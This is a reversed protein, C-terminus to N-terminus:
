KKLTWSNNKYEIESPSFNHYDHFLIIQRNAFPVLPQISKKPVQRDVHSLIFFQSPIIINRLAASEIIMPHVRGTIEILKDFAQQLNEDQVM